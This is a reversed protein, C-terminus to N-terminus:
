GKAGQPGGRNPRCSLPPEGQSTSAGSPGTPPAGPRVCTGEILEKERGVFSCAEGSAKGSCAAISEPPPGPPGSGGPPGGQGPPSGGTAALLFGSAPLTATDHADGGGQQAHAAICIGTILLGCTCRKIIRHM